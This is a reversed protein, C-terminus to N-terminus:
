SAKVTAILRWDELAVKRHHDADSLYLASETLKRFASFSPYEILAVMDWQEESPTVILGKVAGIYLINIGSINEAAAVKNFAPVYGNLYADKGSTLENHGGNYNAVKNFRLLNLMVFPANEKIKEQATIVAQQNISTTKM